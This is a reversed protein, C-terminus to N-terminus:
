ELELPPIQPKQVMVNKGNRIESLPVHVKFQHNIGYYTKGGFQSEGFYHPFKKGPSELHKKLVDTDLSGTKEIADKLWRVPWYVWASAAGFPKGFKTVYRKYFEKMWPTADDSSWDINSSLLGECAEKGIIPVMIDAEGSLTNSVRVGKYGLEHLAKAMQSVYGTAASGIEIADPNMAMAKTMLPMFDTTALDFLERQLVKIGLEKCAEIDHDTEALGTEDNQGILVATKVGYKEKVYKWLIPAIEHSTSCLARFNYPFQPGLAKPTYSNHLLLIKNENLLPSFAVTPSSGIPGLVYKIKQEFILRSGESVAATGTYKDDASIFDLLYNKKGVKIGGANNIDEVALSVGRQMNIGWAAGAGSMPGLVGIKITEKTKQANSQSAFVLFLALSLCLVLCKKM